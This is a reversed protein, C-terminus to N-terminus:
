GPTGQWIYSDSNLLYCELYNPDLYENNQNMEPVHKLLAPCPDDWFNGLLTLSVWNSQLWQLNQVFTRVEEIKTVKIPEQFQIIKNGTHYSVIGVRIFVQSSPSPIPTLHKPSHLPLM